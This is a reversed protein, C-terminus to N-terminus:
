GYVYGPDRTPNYDYDYDETSENKHVFVAGPHCEGVSIVFAFLCFLVLFLTKSTMEKSFLRFGPLSIGVQNYSDKISSSNQFFYNVVCCKTIVLREKTCYHYRCKELCFFPAQSQYKPPLTLSRM